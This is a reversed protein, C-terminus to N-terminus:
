WRGARLELDCVQMRQLAYSVEEGRADALAMFDTLVTRAENVHGRWLLRLGEVPEPSDTIHSAAESAARFRECVEDIALGRMARAWGLGHLALREMVPGNRRAEPLAELAWAEAEPIRRVYAPVLHSKKALVYAHLVPDGDSAAAALDLYEVTDYISRIAGGEGLRLWARVRDRESLSDLEPTLLDTVRQREGAVELHGALELLRESRAAST